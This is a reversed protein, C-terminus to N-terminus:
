SGNPREPAPTLWVFFFLLPALIALMVLAVLTASLLMPWKLVAVLALRARRGPSMARSWAEVTVRECTDVDIAASASEAPLWRTSRASLALAFRGVNWFPLWETGAYPVLVADFHRARLPLLRRFGADIIGFRAASYRIVEDAHGTKEIARASAENTLVTIRADPSGARVAALSKLALPLAVSRVFLISRQRRGAVYSDAESEGAAVVSRSVAVGADRGV